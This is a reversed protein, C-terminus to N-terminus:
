SSLNLTGVVGDLAARMDALDILMLQREDLGELDSGFSQSLRYEREEEAAEIVNRVFRGNGVLDINRRLKGTPDVSEGEYLATCASVLEDYAAETLESDRTRAILRGIDGLEAPTYSAFRIRKTFRSALRWSKTPCCRPLVAILVVASM